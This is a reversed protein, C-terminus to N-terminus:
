RCAGDLDCPCTRGAASAATSGISGSDDVSEGVEPVCCSYTVDEARAPPSKQDVNHYTHAGM